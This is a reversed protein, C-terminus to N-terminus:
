PTGRRHVGNCQLRSPDERVWIGRCAKGCQCCKEDGVHNMTTSTAAGHRLEWCQDCLAHTWASRSM